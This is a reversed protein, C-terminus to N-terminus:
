DALMLVTKLSFKRNCHNFLDELNPGLLDIVIKNYDKEIKEIENIIEIYKTKEVLKDVQNFTLDVEQKLDGFYNSIYYNPNLQMSKLEEIKQDM